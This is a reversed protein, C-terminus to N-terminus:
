ASDTLFLLFSPPSSQCIKDALADVSSVVGSLISELTNGGDRRAGVDISVDLIDGGSGGGSSGRRLLNAEVEAAADVGLLNVVDLGVDVDVGPTPAASAFIGFALPILSFLAFYRM